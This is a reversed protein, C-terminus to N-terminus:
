AAPERLTHACTLSLMSALYLYLSLRHPGPAAVALLALPLLVLVLVLVLLVPLLGLLAEAGLSAM